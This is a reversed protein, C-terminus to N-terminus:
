NFGGVAIIPIGTKHLVEFKFPPPIYINALVYPKNEILCSLFIYRGQEDICSERCSFVVGRGVMISVGRSYSSHVSHYQTQFGRSRLQIVAANTLHTEQLCLLGPGSRELGSLFVARKVPDGLGRVNWSTVSFTRGQM